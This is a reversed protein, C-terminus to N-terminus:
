WITQGINGRRGSRPLRSMNVRQNANVDLNFIHDLTRLANTMFVAAQEMDTATGRSSAVEYCLFWSLSDSARMVPIQQNFWRTNGVDLFDSLYRAYRVRIDEVYLSGPMYITDGRWEWIRNYNWKPPTPLGDLWKTM